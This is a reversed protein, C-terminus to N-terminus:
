RAESRARVGQTFPYTISTAKLEPSMKFWLFHSAQRDILLGPPPSASLSPISLHAQYASKPDAGCGLFAVRGVVSQGEPHTYIDVAVLAGETPRRKLAELLAPRLQEVRHEVEKALSQEQGLGAFWKLLDAAGSIGMHRISYNTVAPGWDDSMKGEANRLPAAREGVARGYLDVPSPDISPCHAIERSIQRPFTCGM